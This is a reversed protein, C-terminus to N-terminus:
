RWRGRAARRGLEEDGEIQPDTAEPARRGGALVVFDEPSLTVTADADADDDVPAARGDEGVPVTWRWGPTPYTSGSRRAPPPAVRKGVVM